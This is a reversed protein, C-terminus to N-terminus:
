YGQSLKALKDAVMFRKIEVGSWAVDSSLKAILLEDNKDIYRELAAHIATAPGPHNIVWVSNLQHWWGDALEKIEKYLAEYKHGPQNLDYSILYIAM